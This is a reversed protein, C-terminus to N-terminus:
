INLFSKQLSVWIFEPILKPAPRLLQGLKEVQEQIKGEILKSHEQAKRGLDRKYLQRLKKDQKQSM